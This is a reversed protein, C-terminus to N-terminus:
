CRLSLDELIQAGPVVSLCCNVPIELLLEGARIDDLAVCGREGAVSVGQDAGILGVAQCDPIEFLKMFCGYVVKLQFRYHVVPEFSHINIM